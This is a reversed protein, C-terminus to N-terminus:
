NPMYLTPWGGPSQMHSSLNGEPTEAPEYPNVYEIDDWLTLNFPTSTEELFVVKAVAM